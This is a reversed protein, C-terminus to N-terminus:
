GQECFFCFFLNFHYYMEFFDFDRTSAQFLISVLMYYRLLIRVLNIIFYYHWVLELYHDFVHFTYGVHVRIMRDGFFASFYSHLFLSLSLPRSRAGSM